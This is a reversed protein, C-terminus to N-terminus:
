RRVYEFAAVNAGAAKLEKELQAIDEKSITHDPVSLYFVIVMRLKDSATPAVDPKPHRLTELISQTTQACDHNM